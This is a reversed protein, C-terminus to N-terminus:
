SHAGVWRPSWWPYYFVFIFIVVGLSEAQHNPTQARRGMSCEALTTRLLRKDCTRLRHALIGSVHSDRFVKLRKVPLTSRSLATLSYTCEQSTWTNIHNHLTCPLGHHLYALNFYALYLFYYISILSVFTGFYFFCTFALYHFHLVLIHGLSPHSPFKILKGTRGSAAFLSASIFQSLKLASVQTFQLVVASDFHRM